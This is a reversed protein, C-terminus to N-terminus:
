LVRNPNAVQLERLQSSLDIQMVSLLPNEMPYNILVYM